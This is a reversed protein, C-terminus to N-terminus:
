KLKLENREMYIELAKTFWEEEEKALPSFFLSDDLEVDEIRESLEVVAELNNGAVTKVLEMYEHLLAQISESAPDAGYVQKLQMLIQHSRKNIEVMKEEPINYLEEVREESLYTKLWEKHEKELQISQIVSILIAPDMKEEGDTMHIAHDLARIVNEVHLKKQIMELRLFSLSEQLNWNKENIFEHISELSYGLFKLTIIKQLIIFDTDSYYRRGSETIYSPKLLGIEDYYRLARITTSSKKAFDGISYKAEM